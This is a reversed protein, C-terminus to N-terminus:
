TSQDEAQLLQTDIEIRQETEMFLEGLQGTPLEPPEDSRGEQVERGQM